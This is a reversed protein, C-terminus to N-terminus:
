KCIENWSCDGCIEERLNKDLIINKVTSIFEGYPITQGEGFGCKELVARDYGSVKKETKCIGNINNPCCGCVSDASLTLTINTNNNESLRGLLDDMNETFEKSYGKGKYFQFCMGHHPRLRIDM